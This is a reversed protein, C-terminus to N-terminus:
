LKGRRWRGRVDGGGKETNIELCQHSPQPLSSAGNLTSCTIRTRWYKLWTSVARQSRLASAERVLTSCSWDQTQDSGKGWVLIITLIIEDKRVFDWHTPIHPTAWFWFHWFNILPEWSAFMGLKCPLVSLTFSTRRPCGSQPLSALMKPKAGVRRQNLATDRLIFTISGLDWVLKQHLHPHQCDFPFASQHLHCPARRRCQCFFLFDAVFLM